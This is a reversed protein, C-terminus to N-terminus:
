EGMENKFSKQHSSAFQPVGMSSLFKLCHKGPSILPLADCQKVEPSFLGIHCSLNEGRQMHGCIIAFIGWSRSYVLVNKQPSNVDISEMLLSSESYM